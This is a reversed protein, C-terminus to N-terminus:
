VKEGSSHVRMSIIENAGAATLVATGVIFEGTTALVAQGNVDSALLDGATVAAGVSVKSIGRDVLEAAQGALPKNQLPMSLDGNGALAANGSTDIKVLFFQKGSLDAAAELSFAPGPIEFAM